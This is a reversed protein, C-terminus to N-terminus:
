CINISHLRRRYYTYLKIANLATWKWNKVTKFCRYIPQQTFELKAPTKEKTGCAWTVYYLLVYKNPRIEAQLSTFLYLIVAGNDYFQRKECFLCWEQWSVSWCEVFVIEEKILNSSVKKSYYTEIRFFTFFILDLLPYLSQEVASHNFSKKGTKWALFCYVPCIKRVMGFRTHVAKRKTSRDNYDTKYGIILKLVELILYRSPVCSMATHKRNRRKSYITCILNRYRRYGVTCRNRATEM